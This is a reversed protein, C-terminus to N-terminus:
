AASRRSADRLGLRRDPLKCLLQQRGDAASTRLALLLIQSSRPGVKLSIPRRGTFLDLVLVAAVALIGVGGLLAGWSAVEM